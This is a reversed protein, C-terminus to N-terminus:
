FLSRVGNVLDSTWNCDLNTVFMVHNPSLEIPLKFMFDDIFVVQMNARRLMETKVDVSSCIKIFVNTPDSESAALSNLLTILDPDKGSICSINESFIISLVLAVYPLRKWAKNFM